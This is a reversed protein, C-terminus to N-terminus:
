SAASEQTTTSPVAEIAKLAYQEAYQKIFQLELDSWKQSWPEPHDHATITHDPWAEPKRNTM